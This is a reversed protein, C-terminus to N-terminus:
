RNSEPLIIVFQAGEGEKGKSYIIGGHNETIKKCIALGMGSGKHQNGHLRQFPTFIKEECSQEFGIGNDAVTICHYARDSSLASNTQIKETLPESYIKIELPRNENKFQVANYILNGFLIKLQRASGNVVPLAAFTIVAENSKLIGNLETKVEDILKDLDCSAHEDNDETLAHLLVLSDILLNLQRLSTEIRKIYIGTDASANKNKSIFMDLLTSLKRVPAALDHAALNILEDLKSEQKRYNEMVLNSRKCEFIIRKSQQQDNNLLIGKATIEFSLWEGNNNRLFCTFKHTENEVLHMCKDWDATFYKVQKHRVAQMFLLEPKQEVEHIVYNCREISGASPDYVFILGPLKSVINEWYHSM